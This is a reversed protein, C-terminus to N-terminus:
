INGWRINNTLTSHESPTMIELNEPRNDDKIGNKHHVQLNPKDLIGAVYRHEMVYKIKKKYIIRIRVYGRKDIFRGGKWNSNKEGLSLEKGRCSKSCYQGRNKIKLNSKYITKKKGCCKCVIITKRDLTYHNWCCYIKKDKSQKYRSVYIDFSKKCYPCQVSVWQENQHWGKM